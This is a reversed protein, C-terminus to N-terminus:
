DNIDVCVSKESINVHVCKAESKRISLSYGRINLEMPDGLPAYKVIKLSTGPTVGMAMLRQKLVPDATIGVVNTEAGIKCESLL